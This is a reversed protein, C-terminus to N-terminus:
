VAAGLEEAAKFVPFLEKDSLNWGNVHSGIQVGALGLEQVCRRLEGVALEPSQMPLTGLGVFRHPARAVCAAMHDNLMVSLDLADEPKAWYSFMVPVTSLVHADVGVADCDALRRELSWVNDTVDRFPTGDDKFMRARGACGPTHELRVWGGYGYRSKLDPWSEPLIHTHVDVRLSRRSGGRTGPLLSM